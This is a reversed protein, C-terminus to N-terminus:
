YVFMIIDIDRNKIKLVNATHNIESIHISGKDL